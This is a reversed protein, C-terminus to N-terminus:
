LDYFLRINTTPDALVPIQALPHPAGSEISLIHCSPRGDCTLQTIMLVDDLPSVRPRDYVGVLLDQYLDLAICDMRRLHLSSAPPINWTKKPM